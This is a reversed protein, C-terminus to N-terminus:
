MTHCQFCEVPGMGSDDHCGRCLTHFADGLKPSDEDSDKMHCEECPTPREDPDEIDHHCDMCAIAYGSEAAHEKHDFLVEGTTSQFMIRVPPEPTTVPFAAYCILGVLFLIIVLGYAMKRKTTKNM